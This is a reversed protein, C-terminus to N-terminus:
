DKDNDDNDDEPEDSGNKAAASKISKLNFPDNGMRFAFLACKNVKCYRVESPQGNSCQICFARIATKRNNVKNVYKAIIAKHDTRESANDADIQKIIPIVKAAAAAAREPNRRM